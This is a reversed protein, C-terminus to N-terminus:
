TPERPPGVNSVPGPPMSPHCLLLVNQQPDQFQPSVTPTWLLLVATTKLHCLLGRSMAAVLSARQDPFLSLQSVRSKLPM